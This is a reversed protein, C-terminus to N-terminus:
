HHYATFKHEFRPGTAAKLWVKTPASLAASLRTTSCASTKHAGGAPSVGVSYLNAPHWAQREEAHLNPSEVKHKGM